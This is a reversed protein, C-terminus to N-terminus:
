SQLKVQNRINNSNLANNHIVQSEELAFQAARVVEDDDPEGANIRRLILRNREPRGSGDCIQMLDADSLRRTNDPNAEVGVLIWFCYNRFQNEPFGLKKLVTTTVEDATRCHKINLVKTQGRSHIVRIMPSNAPLTGMTLGDISPNQRLHQTSRTQASSPTEPRRSSSLGASGPNSFYGTSNEQRGNDVLPSTVYKQSRAAQPYADNMPSSPRSNSRIGSGITSSYSHLAAPELNRSYRKNVGAAQPRAGRPSDSSSPTYQRGELAALSDRNRRRRVASKGRLQKIAVIMRVRDGVKKIGMEQLIAQDCELLNDGNINNARFLTEYQGCRISRLWEAIRKDDWLRHVATLAYDLLSPRGSM